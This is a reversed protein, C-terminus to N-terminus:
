RLSTFDLDWVGADWVANVGAVNRSEITQSIDFTEPVAVARDVLMRDVRAWAEARAALGSVVAAKAM